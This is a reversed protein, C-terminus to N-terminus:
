FFTTNGTYATYLFDNNCVNLNEINPNRRIKIYASLPDGQRTGRELKFYNTTQGGNIICLEQNKLLLKIWRIFDNKFGYKELACVLFLHNVSDFAKEIDVMQLIGEIQLLDTIEAVDSILRGGESIFRYNLYAIQNESILYNLINKVRIGIVKSILKTDINLM